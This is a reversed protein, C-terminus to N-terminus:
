EVPLGWFRRGNFEKRKISDDIRAQRWKEIDLSRSVVKHALIEAGKNLLEVIRADDCPFSCRSYINLQRHDERHANTPLIRTASLRIAIDPALIGADISYEVRFFAGSPHVILPDFNIPMGVDM